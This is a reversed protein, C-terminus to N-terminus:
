RHNLGFTASRMSRHVQVWVTRPRGPVEAELMFYDERQPEDPHAPPPPPGRWYWVIRQGDGRELSPEGSPAADAWARLAQVAFCLEDADVYQAGTGHLADAPRLGIPFHGILKVKISPVACGTLQVSEVDFPLPEAPVPMPATTLDCAVSAALLVAILLPRGLAELPIM